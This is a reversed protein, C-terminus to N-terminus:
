DFYEIERFMIGSPENNEYVIKKVWNGKFDYSYKYSYTNKEGYNLEILNGDEDYKHNNKTVLKDSKYFDSEIMKKNEDYLYVEKTDIIEENKFQDVESLNGNKDYNFKKTWNHRGDSTNDILKEIKGAKNYEYKGIKFPSGQSDYSNYEKLKNNQYLYMTRSALTGDPMYENTEIKFGDLNFLIEKNFLHPKKEGDEVISFNNVALFKTERFSKVEGLLNSKSWDNNNKSVTKLEGNQVCSILFTTIILLRSINKM